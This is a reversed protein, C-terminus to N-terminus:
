AGRRLAPVRVGGIWRPGWYYPDHISKVRVGSSSTTSVFKGGGIYIGAHGVSASTTDFFVLDGMKLGSRSRVRKFEGGALGYQAAANHPLDAGHGDFVWMTLGSCDFGSPSAGGYSYPTGVQNKARVRIHRRMKWVKKTSHATAASFWGLALIAFVVVSVLAIRFGVPFTTSGTM